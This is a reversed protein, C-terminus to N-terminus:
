SSFVSITSLLQVYQSFIFQIAQDTKSLGTNLLTPLVACTSVNNLMNQDNMLFKCKDPIWTENVQFFCRRLTRQSCDLSSFFSVANCCRVTPRAISITGGFRQRTHQSAAVSDLPRVPDRVRYRCRCGIKNELLIVDEVKM